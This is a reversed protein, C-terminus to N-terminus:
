KMNMIRAPGAKEQRRCAHGPAAAAEDTPTFLAAAGGKEKM